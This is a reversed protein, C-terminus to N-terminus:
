NPKTYYIELKLRKNENSPVPASGFLVTGLPSMVSSFPVKKFAPSPTRLAMSTSKVIDETVSVGLRVNTSDKLLVRKIHETIRVKYQIGKRNTDDANGTLKVIGSFTVKSYKTKGGGNSTDFLYDVLPINDKANYVYIRNPDMNNTMTPQDVYFVLNAENILWNNSIAETRLAELEASEGGGFLDIMAVSGNGGKLYLKQDGTVPNGVINDYTQSASTSANDLLSVTNGKLNLVLTKEEVGDDVEEGNVIKIKKDEYTMTITGKSFDLLALASGSIEEVQFYLGKFHNKFVNNNVLNGSSTILKNYFFDKNLNLKMSPLERVIDGGEEEPQIVHELPSFAFQDNQSLDSSDNLRAGKVSNFVANQDSYFKQADVFGGNPDFDRLYYGNEYVGLKIKNAINGYVSDLEYKNSGDTETKLFTTYYPINLVVSKIKASSPVDRFKPNESKLEVQTVFNATTKGFIGSDFVGLPNVSLNNTQVAGTKQNFAVISSADNKIFGFHDNDDVIDAGISNYESDCSLLFGLGMVLFLVKKFISNNLM